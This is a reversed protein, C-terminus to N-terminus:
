LGRSPEAPTTSVKDIYLAGTAEELLTADTFTGGIDIGLRYRPMM